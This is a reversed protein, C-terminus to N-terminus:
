SRVARVFQMPTVGYCRKFHHTLASQDYFGAAIATDGIPRGSTLYQRATDLRVQTVYAHPTLGTMRKFLGILQYQTMELRACLKGLSPPKSVQARIYDIAKNLRLRDRLAPEVRVGGSGHRQFLAGFSVLLMERECLPDRGEELARHLAMFKGVLDEDNLPNRTFFPTSEMGLGQAIEEMASQELYLSRYRWHQSAGMWSQHPESPNFVFITSPTAQEVVGRSKIATGGIETVAVVIGDHRHPAFEQSHFDAHMMSLGLTHRNSWYRTVNKKDLRAM